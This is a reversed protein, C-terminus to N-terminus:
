ALRNGPRFFVTATRRGPRNAGAARGFPHEFDDLTPGFAYGRGAACAASASCSAIAQTACRLPARGPAATAERAARRRCAGRGVAASIACRTVGIRVYVTELARRL